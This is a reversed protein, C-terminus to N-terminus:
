LMIGDNGATACGNRAQNGAQALLKGVLRAHDHRLAIQHHHVAAIDTPPGFGKIATSIKRTTFPLSTSCQSTICSSTGADLVALPLGINMGSRPPVHRGVMTAADDGRPGTLMAM